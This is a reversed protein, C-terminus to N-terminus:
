YLCSFVYSGQKKRKDALFEPTLSDKGIDSFFYREGEHSKRIFCSFKPDGRFEALLRGYLDGYHWRTGAIDTFGSPQLLSGANQYVSVVKDMLEKTTTNKDSVLDDFKIRSYHKGVKSTEVGATDISPEVSAKGRPSIVIASQNWVGRKPDVEWKGIVSRFKSGSVSGLIHNKIGLLFGEAKETSDSYLLVRENPDCLLLWLSHAITIISSKFTYRPMLMLKVRAKDHQLYECLAEHEANMDVYGLVESCFYRLDADWWWRFINM